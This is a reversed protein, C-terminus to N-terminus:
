SNRYPPTGTPRIYLVKEAVVFHGNSLSYERHTEGFSPSAQRLNELIGKVILWLWLQYRNPSVL